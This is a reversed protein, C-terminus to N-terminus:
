MERAELRRLAVRAAEVRHREGSAAERSMFERLVVPPACDTLPLLDHRKLGDPQSFYLDLMWPLDDPSHAQAVCKVAQSTVSWGAEKGLSAILWDRLASVSDPDSWAALARGAHVQVGEWKSRLGALVTARAVVNPRSRALAELKECETNIDVRESRNTYRIQREATPRRRGTRQQPKINIFAGGSGVRGGPLSPKSAVGVLLSGHSEVRFLMRVVAADIEVGPGHVEADKVGVALDDEMPVRAGRRFSEQPRDLGIALPEDYPNLADESPIPERVQAPTLLDLKNKAMGQVHSAGTM